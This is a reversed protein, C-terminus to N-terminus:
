LKELQELIYNRSDEIEIMKLRSKSGSLLKIKGKSVRLEKALFKILAQNAMGKDAIARVRVKLCFKGGEGEVWGEIKDEKSKPTLRVAFSVGLQTTKYTKTIVWWGFKM